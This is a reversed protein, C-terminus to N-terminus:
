LTNFLYTKLQRKFSDTSTHLLSPLDNWSKPGAFSLLEGTSISSAAVCMTLRHYVSLRGFYNYDDIPSVKFQSGSVDVTGQKVGNCGNNGASQCRYRCSRESSRFVHSTCNVPKSRHNGYGLCTRIVLLITITM